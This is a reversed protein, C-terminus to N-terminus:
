AGTTEEAKVKFWQTVTVERPEVRYAEIKDRSDYSYWWDLEGNDGKDESRTIAWTTDDAPDCFVIQWNIYWRHEDEGFRALVNDWPLGLRELQDATYTRTLDTM